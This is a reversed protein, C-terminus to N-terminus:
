IEDCLKPSRLYVEPEEDGVKGILVVDKPYKRNIRKALAFEDDDLDIVKMDKIAVYKDKYKPDDVLTKKFEGYSSLIELWLAEQSRAKSRTGESNRASISKGKRKSVADRKTKVEIKQKKSMEKSLIAFASQVKM